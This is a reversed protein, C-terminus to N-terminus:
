ALIKGINTIRVLIIGHGLPKVLLIFNQNTVVNGESDRFDGIAYGKVHGKTTLNKTSVSETDEYTAKATYKTTAGTDCDGVVLIYYYFYWRLIMLNFYLFRSIKRFILHLFRSVM